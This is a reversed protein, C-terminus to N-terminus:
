VKVFRVYAPVPTSTGGSGAHINPTGSTSGVWGTIKYTHAGASPTFRYTAYVPVVIQSSAANTVQALRCIQTSGEFLSIVIFGSTTNPPVVGNSYFQVIVPQGDFTVSGPSILATATSESTDTVNVTATIETYNIEYGPPYKWANGTTAASDATLVQGNSGVALRANTTSYTFIDGKTTLPSSGGGSSSITIDGASPSNDTITINSGAVLTVAGTITDLSSVGASATPNAWAAHTADSATLVQNATPATSSVAVGEIAAVTPNPFTGSLDGGAAGNPPLATPIQGFAAADSSVTGNALGTIKQSNLAVAATPPHQTAITDLTGTRVTPSSGTGGVVVSTDAATLSNVGPSAAYVVGGTGDAVPVWNASAAGSDMQAAGVAKAALKAQTVANSAIKGSTVGLASVAVTPDTVTGGITISADGATVSNVQGGGGGGPQNAPDTFTIDGDLRVHLNEAVEFTAPYPNPM